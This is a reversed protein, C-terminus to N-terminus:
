EELKLSSILQTYIIRTEDELTNYEGSIMIINDKHAFVTADARYLGDWSYVLGETGAITTSSLAGDPSLKFNSNASKKVFNTISQKDLNNQFVNIAVGPPAETGEIKGALLDRVFKTDELLLIQYHSREVNGVERETLLYKSSYNFSIGYHSNNYTKETETSVTEPNQSNTRTNSKSILLGGLVSFIIIFVVAAFFAKRNM